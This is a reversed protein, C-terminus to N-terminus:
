LHPFYSVFFLHQPLAPVLVWMMQFSTRNETQWILSLNLNSLFFLKKVSRIKLCQLLSGLSTISDNDSCINLPVFIHCKPSPSLPPSPLEPNIPPCVPVLTHCLAVRSNNYVSLIASAHQSASTLAVHAKLHLGFFLCEWWMSSEEWAYLPFIEVSDNWWGCSIMKKPRYFLKEYFNAWLAAIM